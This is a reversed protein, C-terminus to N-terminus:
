KSNQSLAYGVPILAGAERGPPINLLQAIKREAILPGTMYCAGLGLSEAALLIMMSVCSISKVSNDREWLLIPETISEKLLTKMVPSVRFYPVFLVPANKFFLFNRSYKIFMEGSEDEMNLSVREVENEIAASLSEIISRERVTIIGWNKSGGAYPSLSATSLIKEISEEPIAETKFNRCSKRTECIVKFHEFTSEM